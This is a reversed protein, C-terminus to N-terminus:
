CSINISGILTQNIVVSFIAFIIFHIVKSKHNIQISFLVWSCVFVIARRRQTSLRISQTAHINKLPVQYFLAFQMRFLCCSLKYSVCSPEHKTRERTLTSFHWVVASYGNTTIFQSCWISTSNIWLIKNETLFFKISENLFM